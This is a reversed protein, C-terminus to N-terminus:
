RSNADRGLFRRMRPQIQRGEAIRHERHDFSWVLPPSSENRDEPDPVASRDLRGAAADHRRRRGNGLGEPQFSVAGIGDDGLRHPPRGDPNKKGRIGVPRDGRLRSCEREDRLDGIRDPYRDHELRRVM